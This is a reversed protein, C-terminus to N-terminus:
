TRDTAQECAHWLNPYLVLECCSQRRKRVNECSNGDNLLVIAGCRGKAMFLRLSYTCKQELYTYAFVPLSKKEFSGGDSGGRRYRVKLVTGFMMVVVIVRTVIRLRLRGPLSWDPINIWIVYRILTGDRDTGTQCNQLGDANQAKSGPDPPKGPLAYFATCRLEVRATSRRGRLPASPWSEWADAFLACSQM